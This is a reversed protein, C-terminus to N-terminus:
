RLLSAAASESNSLSLQWSELHLSRLPGVGGNELAFNIDGFAQARFLRMFVELVLSRVSAVASLLLCITGLM